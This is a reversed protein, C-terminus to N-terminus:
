SFASKSVESWAFFLPVYLSSLVEWCDSSCVLNRGQRENGQTEFYVM